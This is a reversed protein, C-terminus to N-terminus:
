VTNNDDNLLTYIADVVDGVSRVDRFSEADPKKGIKEKLYVLLDVADISDIDLEEYLRAELTIKDEEIKFLSVMAEKIISYVDEKLYGM